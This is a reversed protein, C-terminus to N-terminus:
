DVDVDEILMPAPGVKMLAKPRRQMEEVADLARREAARAEEENAQARRMAERARRRDRRARRLARQLAAQRDELQRGRRELESNAAQLERERAKVEALAARVEMEAAARAEKERETQVLQREVEAKAVRTREAERQATQRAEMVMTLGIAAAVLLASLSVIVGAVVRQRRRAARDALAFVAQLYARERGPLEGRYRRRWRRAEEMVEGRWLLRPSRGREDWQRATTALEALFVADDQHEDLWRALRPWRQILSEHVLEVAASGAAAGLEGTQVVLLRSRVLHDILRHIEAPDPGLECLEAVSVLARTREPTVLRLLVRKAVAHAAAPVSAYVDDAHSALAGGIGGIREYGAATLLRRGHDRLDWLKAATFQLLPLAGSVGDLHDLMADVVAASEFRFGALAAPEVVAQRLSARDPPTLFYLGRTLEAFFYSDEAVRDLFDSRLAIVVRLPSTADDAVSALCATFAQRERPDAVLTYLEEFQDVFLVVRQGRHRAHSRLVAGLYGPESALRHALQQQAALADAVDGGVQSSLPAVLDVLAQMPRRGPRVVLATWAEGSHRLAPIVGARVFSSKGAGSPGLVGMLPQDRLRAVAAAIDVDRGFFRDADAEQFASLGAYPSEDLRLKRSHRGPLLPELVALLERASGMRQAKPKRLCRDIVAALEGSLEPAAERVSPMPQDLVGTVMLQRGRLPALPHRGTMMQFLLIGVAWLDTRHDVQDAGWQEPSMYPVTGILAGRRTLPADADADVVALPLSLDALARGPERREQAVKAIGFDLVKVAGADTVFINDPKLDRHVIHHAHARELARVVPVILEVARGPAMQQEPDLHRSLPAGELYELVMFPYGDQEGVEYIVVINEHQCQATTRAERLFRATVEPQDSHLFKVAVRRGLKTDRALYVAGMGGRGLERILEYQRVRVGAAAVRGALVAGIPTGAEDDALAPVAPGSHLDGQGSQLDGSDDGM